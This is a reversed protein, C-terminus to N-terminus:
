GAGLSGTHWGDVDGGWIIRSVEAVFPLGVVTLLFAVDLAFFMALAGVLLGARARGDFRNM